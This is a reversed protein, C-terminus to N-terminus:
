NIKDFVVPHKRNFLVGYSVGNSLKTVHGCFVGDPLKTNTDLRLTRPIVNYEVTYKENMSSIYRDLIMYGSKILRADGFGIIYYFLDIIKSDIDVTYKIHKIYNSKYFEDINQNVTPKNDLLLKIANLKETCEIM